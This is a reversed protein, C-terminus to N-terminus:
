HLPRPLDRHFPYVDHHVCLLPQDRPFRLSGTPRASNRGRAGVRPGHAGGVRLDRRDAAVRPIRAAKADTLVEHPLKRWRHSGPIMRIAGNNATIDDLMWVSNCVWYGYHWILQEGNLNQTFWGLGYPLDRGKNSKMPTFALQQTERSLFRNRDIAIDYKAVDLVSSILGASVSFSKPYEGRVPISDENLAYPAALNRAVNEFRQREVQSRGQAEPWLYPATENLGLPDLIESIVVEGFTKGTAKEVVKNLQAFRNGNYKYGDGPFGESTNSLLHKVRVVEKSDLSIGYDSVPDDLKVKGQEVLRM